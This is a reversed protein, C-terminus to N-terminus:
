TNLATNNIIPAINYVDAIEFKNIKCLQFKLKFIMM